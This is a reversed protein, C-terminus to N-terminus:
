ATVQFLPLETLRYCDFDDVYRAVSAKQVPDWLMVAFRLVTANTSSREM